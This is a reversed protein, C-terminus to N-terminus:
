TFVMQFAPEYIISLKKNYCLIYNIEALNKTIIFLSLSLSFNFIVTM